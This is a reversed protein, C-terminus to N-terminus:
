ADKDRGDTSSHTDSYEKNALQVTRWLVLCFGAFAIVFGIILFLSDHHTKKDLTYGAMIPLIFVLLLQWGLSLAMALFENQARKAAETNEADSEPHSSDAGRNEDKLSPPTAEPAANSKVM